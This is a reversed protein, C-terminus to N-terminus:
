YLLRCIDILKGTEGNLVGKEGNLCEKRYDNVTNIIKCGIRFIKEGYTVTNITTDSILKNLIIKNINNTSLTCNSKRPLIISVDDITYGKDLYGMYLNIITNAIDDKDEKFLYIMDEKEGSVHMSEKIEFPMHAERINNADSIIGSEQAQRFVKTLQVNKFPHNLKMLDVFLNGAGIPPLQKHDGIMVVKCTNPIAKMLHYFLSTNVMSMEDIILLQTDKQNKENFQFQIGDYMLFRHITQAPYHTVEETRRAAKASFAVISIEANNYGYAGLIAKLTTTKGCGLGNKFM